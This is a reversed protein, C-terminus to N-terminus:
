MKRLNIVFLLTITDLLALLLAYEISAFMPPNYVSSLSIHRRKWRPFFRRIISQAAMLVALNAITFSLYIILIVLFLNM